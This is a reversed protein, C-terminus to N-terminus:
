KKLFYYGEHICIVSVLFSILSIIVGKVIADFLIFYRSTLRLFLHFVQEIFILLKQLFFGFFINSTFVSWTFLDTPNNCYFRSGGFAIQLPLAIGVFNWCLEECVEFSLWKEAKYPFLFGLVALTVRFLSSRSPTEGRVALQIAFSCYYFWWPVPMFLSMTIVSILSFVWVYVQMGKSM